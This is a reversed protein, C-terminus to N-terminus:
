FNITYSLGTANLDPQYYVGLHSNKYAKAAKANEAGTKWVWIIDYLWILAGTGVCAYFAQNSYNAAQYHEDMATQETASQYKKYESNSYFKLGVGTGILGYTWLATGVGSKKGYTVKHDGLGPVLLSLFANSSGGTGNYKLLKVEVYDNGNITAKNFQFAFKGMPASYLANSIDSRYASFKPADSEFGNANKNVKIIAEDTSITYEFVAKALVTYGNMSPQKLKINDSIKKLKENLKTDSITSVFDTTTVGITDINATITIKTPTLNKENFLIAKIDSINGSNISEYDFYFSEKYDYTKNQRENLFQLIKDIKVIKNQIDKEEPRVTLANQYALKAQSYKKNIEFNEAQRIFNQYQEERMQEEKEIRLQEEHERQIREQALKIQQEIEKYNFITILYHVPVDSYRSEGNQYYQKLIIELNNGKYRTELGEDVAKTQILKYVTSNQLETKLQAFREKGMQYTIANDFDDYKYLYFWAEAKDNWRNKNYSWTIANYNTFLDGFYDANNISTRHLEWGRRSLYDEVYSLSKKQFLLLEDLKLNQAFASTAWLISLIAIFTKKSM